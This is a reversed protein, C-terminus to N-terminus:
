NKRKMDFEMYFGSVDITVKITNDDVLKLDMPVDFAYEEVYFFTQIHGNETPKFDSAKITNEAMGSINLNVADGDKVVSVEGNVTAGDMPNEISYTWDGIMKQMDAKATDLSQASVGFAAALMLVACVIINKKM